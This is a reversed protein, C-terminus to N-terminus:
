STMGQRATRLLWSLGQTTLEADTLRGLRDIPKVEEVIEGQIFWVKGDHMLRLIRCGEPGEKLTRTM